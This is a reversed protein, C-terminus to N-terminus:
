PIIDHKSLWRYLTALSINLYNALEKKNETSYGFENLLTVLDERSPKTKKKSVKKVTSIDTAAVKSSKTLETPLIDITIRDNEDTAVLYEIINELERINGPWSYHKFVSLADQSLTKFPRNNRICNKKIFYNALIELDDNRNRLPPINIPIVNLRYFLDKRFKSQSILKELNQHTASIIRVNIPIPHTSGIKEITKEQLVRLLKSQLHIPMDGIEDLFLTGNNAAEFKGIKGNKSAGTFSGKTYGFLESELLNEPISACNIAIFAETSRISKEHILRAFREKGTGSEGCILISSDTASIKDITNFVKLINSSKGIIKNSVKTSYYRHNNFVKEDSEILNTHFLFLTSENFLQISKIQINMSPYASLQFVRSGNLIEKSLTENQTFSLILEPLKLHQAMSNSYILEFQENFIAISKQANNSILDVISHYLGLKHNLAEKALISAIIESYTNFIALTPPNLVYKGVSIWLAGLKNEHSDIPTFYVSNAKCLNSFSCNKCVESSSKQLFKNHLTSLSPSLNAIYQCNQFEIPKPAVSINHLIKHKDFVVIQINHYEAFNYLLQQIFSTM